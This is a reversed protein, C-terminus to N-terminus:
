LMQVDIEQYVLLLFVPHKLPTLMQQKAHMVRQIFGLCIVIELNNIHYILNRRQYEFILSYIKNSTLQSESSDYSDVLDHYHDYFM